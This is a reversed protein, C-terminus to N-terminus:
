DQTGTEISLACTKLLCLKEEKKCAGVGQKTEILWARQCSCARGSM